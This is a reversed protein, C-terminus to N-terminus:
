IAGFMATFVPQQRLKAAFRELLPLLKHELMNPILQYLMYGQRLLSHTRRQTTSTRLMRDYGLEEGAAGLLTLWAITFANILWLRDRRAPSSVRIEGMGMGFRLDKTDRFACEIGWRKGYLKILKAPPLDTSSALCWAEKMGKAQVCVVAPVQYADATVSAGRLLRARGAPGVWEAAHRTEGDASTVTINGRFRIIFDFKLEETLLHYLKRDGFGRDAVICVKIGCPLAAAFRVLAQYEYGNRRDKLTATEVTLWYLPTARGHRCLLSLMLTAQGDAAFDTWDMAVTIAPRSGVVYRVWHPLLTDVDLKANSLMRDVQKVAHKTELGCALALGQGILSVALSCTKIAGLTAGSLSLIRKAHLNCGFVEGLFTKVAALSTQEPLMAAGVGWDILPSFGLEAALDLAAL